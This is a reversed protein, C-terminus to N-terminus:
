DSQQIKQDPANGSTNFPGNEAHLLCSLFCNFFFFDLKM